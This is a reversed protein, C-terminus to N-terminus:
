SMWRCELLYKQKEMQKIDEEADVEGKGEVVKQEM